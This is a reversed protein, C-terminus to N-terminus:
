NQEVNSCLNTTQLTKDCTNKFRKGREKKPRRLPPGGVGSFDVRSLKQTLCNHSKKTFDRLNPLKLGLYKRPKPLLCISFDWSNKIPIVQSIWNTKQFMIVPRGETQTDSTLAFIDGFFLGAAGFEIKSSTSNPARLRVVPWPTSDRDPPVQLETSSSVSPVGHSRSSDKKKAAAQKVM